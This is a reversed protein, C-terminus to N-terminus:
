QEAVASVRKLSQQYRIIGALLADAIQQRYKDTRLLRGEPGNTLFSIEALVSPMTAGILVMFPAQKVGLNKVDHNPKRLREYLSGQVAAAFDRSEDIKNNLAIARVIDPLHRMSRSSGVNERAAIAEAEPNPAFNLFYTEIGRASTNASANAHISLFLDADARNAMATREELPVFTDTRRTLVVEFGPQKSLLKELRLAVDLVLDAENLGKVKAGPDRGGHGADIVIRAVGLGLQRSLSFGGSANASPVSPAVAAVPPVAGNAAIVPRSGARPKASASAAARAVAGSAEDGVATVPNRPAAPPFATWGAAILRAPLLPRTAVPQRARAETSAIAAAAPTRAGGAKAAAASLKTTKSGAAAPTARGPAAREFDIIVRYPNYLAYVSYRRAGQLDFVLRTIGAQPLGVRIQRVVDDAFRLTAGTLADVPRVQLLDILLRSTSDQREARFGTERQLELTIRVADGLVERRVSRLLAPAPAAAVPAAALPAKVAPRAPRTVATSAATPKAAELRKVLPPANKVLSSTPFRTTLTQLMRLATARDVAEGFQWFVDASLSAGQWLANDSYGSTPFLRWMDEYAGVLIRVRRLLPARDAGPRLADLERRLAAERSGAEKLLAASQSVQAHLAPGCALLLVGVVIARGFSRM